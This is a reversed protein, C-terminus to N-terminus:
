IVKIHKGPASKMLREIEEGSRCWNRYYGFPKEITDFIQRLCHLLLCVARWVSFSTQIILIVTWKALFTPLWIWTQPSQSTTYLNGIHRRNWFFSLKPPTWDPLSTVQWWQFGPGFLSVLWKYPHVMCPSQACLNTTKYLKFAFM